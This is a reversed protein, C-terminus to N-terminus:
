LGKVLRYAGQTEFDALIEVSLVSYFYIFPNLEGECAVTLLILTSPKEIYSIVLNQILSIDTSKGQRATVILGSIYLSTLKQFHPIAPINGPLDVVSLDPVDPGEIQISIYNKSFSLEMTGTMYNNVFDEPPTSPSLIARQARRVREEVEEQKFIPKGFAITQAQGLPM